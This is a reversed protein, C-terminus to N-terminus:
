RRRPDRDNRLRTSAEASDSITAPKTAQDWIRRRVPKEGEVVSKEARQAVTEVQPAFLDQEEGKASYRGASTAAQVRNRGGAKAAYLAQDASAVLKEASSFAPGAHNHAFGVSMTVAIREGEWRIDARETMQRLREAFMRAGAYDIGRALVVLEEGGYRAVLDETRVGERLADAVCRLVHDGARHGFQDNVQKFHDIDCMMVCLASGHRAAFAFEAVIREDFHRRNYLGTLGDRVSMEYVRRSAHQEIKDQLAFRLMTSAIQIRMGDQLQVRGTVRANAVWTGNTSGLDEIEYHEGNYLIRAHQRSVGEDELTVEAQESRGLVCCAGTLPFVAGIDSGMLVTLTGQLDTPVLELEERETVLTRQQFDSSV